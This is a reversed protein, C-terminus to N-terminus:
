VKRSGLSRSFCMLIQSNCFYAPRSKVKADVTQKKFANIINESESEMEKLYLEAVAPDLKRSGNTVEIEEQVIVANPKADLCARLVLFMCYVSSSCM